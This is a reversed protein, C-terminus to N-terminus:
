EMAEINKYPTSLVRYKTGDTHFLNEKGSASQYINCVM